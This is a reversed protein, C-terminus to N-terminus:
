RQDHVYLGFCRLLIRSMVQPLEAGEPKHSPWTQPVNASKYQRVNRHKETHQTQSLRMHACTGARAHMGAHSCM